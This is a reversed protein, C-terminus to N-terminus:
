DAAVLELTNPLNADADLRRRAVDNNDLHAALFDAALTVVAFRTRDSSFSDVHGGDLVAVLMKPGGGDANYLEESSSFPNVGDATGHVAAETM